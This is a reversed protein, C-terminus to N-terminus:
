SQEETSDSEIESRNSHLSFQMDVGTMDTQGDFWVLIGIGQM